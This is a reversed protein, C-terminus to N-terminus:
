VRGPHAKAGKSARRSCQGRPEEVRQPAGPFDFFCSTSFTLCCIFFSTCHCLDKLGKDIFEVLCCVEYQDLSVQITQCEEEMLQIRRQLEEIRVGAVDREKRVQRLDAEKSALDSQIDRLKELQIKNESYFFSFFILLMSSASDRMYLPAVEGEELARMIERLQHIEDTRENAVSDADLAKQQCVRTAMIADDREKEVQAMQRLLDRLACSVAEPDLDAGPLHHQDTGRQYRCSEGSSSILTTGTAAPSCPPFAAAALGQGGQEGGAVFIDSWTTPPLRSAQREGSLSRTDGGELCDLDSPAPSKLTLHIM